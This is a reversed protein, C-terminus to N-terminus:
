APSAQRGRAAFQWRYGAGCPHRTIRLWLPAASIKWLIQRKLEVAAANEDMPQIAAGIYWRTSIRGFIRGGLVAGTTVTVVSWSWKWCLHRCYCRARFHDALQRSYEAVAVARM